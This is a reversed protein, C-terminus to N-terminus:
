RGTAKAGTADPQEREARGPRPARVSPSWRRGAPSRRLRSRPRSRVDRRIRWSSSRPTPSAATLRLSMASIRSIAVEALSLDLGFANDDKSTEDLHRVRAVSLVGSESRRAGVAPNALLAGRGIGWKELPVPRTPFLRRECPSGPPSRLGAFGTEWSRNGQRCPFFLSIEYFSTTIALLEGHYARLKMINRAFERHIPVPFLKRRVPLKQRPVPIAKSKKASPVAQVGGDVIGLMGAARGQWKGRDFGVTWVSAPDLRDQGPRGLCAGKSVLRVGSRRRDSFQRAALHHGHNFSRHIQPGM